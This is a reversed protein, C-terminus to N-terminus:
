GSLGSTDEVGEMSEVVNADDSGDLGSTMEAGGGRVRGGRGRDHRGDESRGDMEKMDVEEDSDEVEIDDEYLEESESDSDGEEGSLDLGMREGVWRWAEEGAETVMEGLAVGSTRVVGGYRRLSKKVKPSWLAPDIM